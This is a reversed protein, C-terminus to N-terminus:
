SLGRSSFPASRQPRSASGPRYAWFQFGVRKHRPSALRFQGAADTKTAVWEPERTGALPRPTFYIVQVDSVPKGQDDIVKGQITGGQLQAILATALIPSLISM